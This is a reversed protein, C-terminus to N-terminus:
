EMNELVVEIYEVNRDIDGIRSEIADVKRNIKDLNEEINKLITNQHRIDRLLAELLDTTYKDLQLLGSM